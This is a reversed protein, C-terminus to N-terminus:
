MYFVVAGGYVVLVQSVQLMPVTLLPCAGRRLMWQAHPM